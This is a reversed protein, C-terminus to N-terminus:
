LMQQGASLAACVPIIKQEVCVLWRQSKWCHSHGRPQCSSPVPQIFTLPRPLYPIRVTQCTQHKGETSHYSSFVDVGVHRIEGGLYWVRTTTLACLSSPLCLWGVAWEGADSKERWFLVWMSAANSQKPQQTPLPKLLLWDSIFQKLHSPLSPQSSPM